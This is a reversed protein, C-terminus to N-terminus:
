GGRLLDSARDPEVRLTAAAWVAAVSLLVAVTAALRSAARAGARPRPGRPAGLRAARRLGGLAGGVLAWLAARAIADRMVGDIQARARRLLVDDGSAAQTVAERDPARPELEIRVPAKFVRARVGWDALPM